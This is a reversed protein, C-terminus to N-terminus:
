EDGIKNEGCCKVDNSTSYMKCIQRNNTKEMTLEMIFSNKNKKEGRNYGQHM